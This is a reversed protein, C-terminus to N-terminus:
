KDGSDKLGLRALWRGHSSKGATNAAAPVSEAPRELLRLKEAIEVQQRAIKARELSLEIEAQRLKEEWQQKLQALSEREQQIVLDADVIPRLSEADPTEDTQQSQRQELLLQELEAIRRDKEALMEETEDDVAHSCPIAQQCREALEIEARRLRERQGALFERVRQRQIQLTQAAQEVWYDSAANIPPLAEM